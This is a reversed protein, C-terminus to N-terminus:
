SYPLHYTSGTWFSDFPCAVIVIFIKTIFLISCIFYCVQGAALLILKGRKACLLPGGVNYDLLYEWCAGKSRVERCKNVDSASISRATTPLTFSSTDVTMTTYTKKETGISFVQPHIELHDISFQKLRFNINLVKHIVIHGQNMIM